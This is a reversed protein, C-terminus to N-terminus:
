NRARRAAEQRNRIDRYQDYPLDDLAVSTKTSGAGVTKPPPPLKPATAKPRAAPAAPAPVPTGSAAMESTIMARIAGMEVLQPTPPLRSIRDCEGPNQALYYMMRPGLPENLIVARMPPALAMDESADIVADFDPIEERAAEVRQYHSAVLTDNDQKDRQQIYAQRRKNDAVKAASEAELRDQRAAWRSAALTFQEFTEFDDSKPVPDEAAAKVPPDEQTAAEARAESRAKLSEMERRLSALEARAEETARQSTYKERTLEDIRKQVDRKGKREPEPDPDPEAAKVTEDPEDGVNDADKADKAKVPADPAKPADDPPDAPAAAKPAEGRKAPPTLVFEAASKVDEASDTTSAVTIDAM